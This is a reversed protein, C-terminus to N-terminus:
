DCVPRYASGVFERQEDSTLTRGAIQCARRELSRPRVDWIYTRGTSYPVVLQESGPFFKALASANQIGPLGSGLEQRTAVDWLRTTGDTGSTVLVQGSRDFGTSFV